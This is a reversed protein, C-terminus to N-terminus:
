RKNNRATKLRKAANANKTAESITAVRDKKTM